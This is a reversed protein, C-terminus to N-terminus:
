RVAFWRFTLAGTNGGAGTITSWRIVINPNVSTDVQWLLGNAPTTTPVISVTYASLDQAVPCNTKVSALAAVATAAISCTGTRMETLASGTSALQFTGNVQANGAVTTLQGSRSLTVGSTGAGTGISIPQTGSADILFGTANNGTLSGAIVTNGSAATVTFKGSNVNLDGAVTVNGLLAQIQTARGINLTTANTGGININQAGTADIVLAAAAPGAIGGTGNIQVTGTGKPTLQLSINTDTGTARVSVPVTTAAGVLQVKNALAAGAVIDADVDLGGTAGAVKV